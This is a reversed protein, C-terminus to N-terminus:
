FLIDCHIDFASIKQFQEIESRLLYGPEHFEGCAQLRVLFRSLLFLHELALVDYKKKFLVGRTSAAREFHTGVVLTRLHSVEARRTGLHTLLLADGIGGTHQATHVVTDFVATVTLVDHLIEGFVGTHHNPIAQRGFEVGRLNQGVQEGHLLM